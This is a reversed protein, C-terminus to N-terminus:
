LLYIKSDKRIKTYTSMINRISINTRINEGNHIENNIIRTLENRKVQGKKNKLIPSYMGLWILYREGDSYDKIGIKKLRISNAKESDIKKKIRNNGKTRHNSNAIAKYEDKPILGEIYRQEIISNYGGLTMLIATEIYKNKYDELNFISTILYKNKIESSTLGKRYDDAIFPM